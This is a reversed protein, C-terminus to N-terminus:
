GHRAAQILVGVQPAVGIDAKTWGSWTNPALAGASVIQPSRSTFRLVTYGNTVRREVLAFGSQPSGVSTLPPPSKSGNVPIAIADIESVREPVFATSSGPLYEAPLLLPAGSVLVMRQVAAPGLATVAGRVDPRQYVPDVFVAIVAVLSLACFGLAVTRGARAVALGGAIVILVPVFSGLFFRTQVLDLSPSIVAAVIPVVFGVGAIMALVGAVRRLPSDRCRWLALVAYAVLLALVVTALVGAPETFGFLLERPLQAVRHGLPDVAPIIWKSSWGESPHRQAYALPALALEVVGPAVSALIARRRPRTSLLLLLAEPAVVFTAFYHTALALASTIAWGALLRSRPDRWARLFYYLSAASLLVLLAYSRAEQSYWVLIPSCAAIAAAILGARRTFAVRAAAYIVPITLTGCLASFSRLGVEGTGFAHGWLWVLVYHLPPTSETRPLGALMDAFSVRSLHVTFAEDSDFSQLGLTSFRLAAATTTIALLLAQERARLLTLGQARLGQTRTEFAGVRVATSATAVPVTTEEVSSHRM